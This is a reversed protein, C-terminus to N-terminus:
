LSWEGFNRRLFNKASDVTKFSKITKYLFSDDHKQLLWFGDKPKIIRYRRFYYRAPFLGDSIKKWIIRTTM